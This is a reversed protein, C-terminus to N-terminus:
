PDKGGGWLTCSETEAYIEDQEHNEPRYPSLDRVRRARLKKAGGGGSPTPAGSAFYIRGHATSDLRTSDAGPPAAVNPQPNPSPPTTKAPCGVCVRRKVDAHRRKRICAFWGPRVGSAHPSLKETVKYLYLIVNLTRASNLNILSFVFRWGGLRCRIGPTQTNHHHRHRCRQRPKFLLALRCERVCLCM